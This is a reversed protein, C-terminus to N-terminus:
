LAAGDVSWHALQWEMTTVMTPSGWAFVFVDILNAGPLLFFKSVDSNREIARWVNGFFDSTAKRKGPRFDITLTEGDLLNYDLWLVAQTAENKLYRVQALTGGIRKIRLIPYAKHKGANVVSTQVSGYETVSATTGLYLRNGIFVGTKGGSYIDMNVWTSGNWMEGGFLLNGTTRDVFVGNYSATAGVGMGSWSNGGWVAAYPASIGGATTFLGSAYVRGDLGVALANVDADMGSGMATWANGDWKGMRNGALSTNAITTFKGGVYLAGDLGIAMGLVEGGVGVDLGTGLSSWASGDWKALYNVIVGGAHTYNGGVYLAGDLGIALCNVTGDCGTGLASWASGNWKAIRTLTGSPTYTDTFNGGAYVTGDPGVALCKVIANFGSGLASWASGDWKAVYHVSVGGATTFQGGAYLSGDPGVALADVAGNMGSGMAGWVGAVRQCIYGFTFSAMTSLSVGQSGLEYWFPDYSIFRLQAKEVTWNTNNIELGSDYVAPIRVPKASNAGYYYLWFPDDDATLDPKILDILNDRISHLAAWTNSGSIAINWVITRPLIKRGQFAAGDLLAQEQKLHKNTPMGMGFATQITVGLSEPDIEVGGLRSQASRSSTSGHAGASWECEDQDGDVYTTLQTAECQLGDVYFVGTSSGSAKTVYIRFTTTADATWVVSVRQWVGTGTFTAATGKLTGSTNAFWIKYPVGLVGLVWASAVYVTSITLNVTGFYVGDTAGSTPTVALCAAGFMQQAFSQAISGGVAAYGTMAKEISPNTVLNVAAAPQLIRWNSM